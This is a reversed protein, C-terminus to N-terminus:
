TAIELKKQKASHKRGRSRDETKSKIRSSSVLVSHGGHIGRGEEYKVAENKVVADDEDEEDDDSIVIIVRHPSIVNVPDPEITPRPQRVLVGPGRKRKKSSSSSSSLPLAERHFQRGYQAAFVPDLEAIAECASAFRDIFGGVPGRGPERVYTARRWGGSLIWSKIANQGAAEEAPATNIRKPNCLAGPHATRIHRRLSPQDAVVTGCMVNGGLDIDCVGTNISSLTMGPNPANENEAALIARRPPFPPTPQANTSAAQRSSPPAWGSNLNPIPGHHYGFPSPNTAAAVMLNTYALPNLDAM